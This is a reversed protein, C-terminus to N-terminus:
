KKTATPCYNLRQMLAQKKCPKRSSQRRWIYEPSHVPAKKTTETESECSEPSSSASSESESESSSSADKALQAKYKPRTVMKSLSAEPQALCRGQACQAVRRDSGRKSVKKPVETAPQVEEGIPNAEPQALRRGESSQTVRRDSGGGERAEKRSRKRNLQCSSEETSVDMEESTKKNKNEKKSLDYVKKKLVENQKMMEEQRKMMEEQQKVSKNLKEILMAIAKEMENTVEDECEVNVVSGGQEGMTFLNNMAESTQDYYATRRSSMGIVTVRKSRGRSLKM